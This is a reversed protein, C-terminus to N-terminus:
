MRKAKILLGTKLKSMGLNKNGSVFYDNPYQERLEKLRETSVLDTKTFVYVLEKGYIGVLKEIEKNRSLEPMRADLVFLVIDSRKMVIKVIPWFGM